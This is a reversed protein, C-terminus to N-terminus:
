VEADCKICIPRKNQGYGRGAKFAAAGERILSLAAARQQRTQNESSRPFVMKRCVACFSIRLNRPLNWIEGRLDTFAEVMEPISRQNM